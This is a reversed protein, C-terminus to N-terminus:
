WLAGNVHALELLIATAYSGKNLTFSLRYSSPSDKEWTVNEPVIRLPRHDTEANEQILGAVLDPYCERVSAEYDLAKATLYSPKKGSMFGVPHIDLQEIRRPIDEMLADPTFLSHSGELNFSDGEIATCWNGEKVRLSLYHNFLYSRVSSLYLGKKYKSLRYPRKFYDRAKEVNAGDFGFRQAAFYNPVGQLTICTLRELWADEDFNLATVNITFHNKKHTGRKLKRTHRVAREIDFGDEKLEPFDKVIPWPVSLWQRTVATKDKLGSYGIDRPKLSLKKALVRIVEDTTMGVKKIFLFVHEGSGEPEFGLVEDVQFDSSSQKILGKFGLDPYARHFQFDLEPADIM